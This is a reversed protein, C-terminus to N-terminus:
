SYVYKSYVGNIEYELKNLADLYIFRPNIDSLSERDAPIYESFEDRLLEIYDKIIEEGM